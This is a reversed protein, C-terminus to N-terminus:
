REGGTLLLAALETDVATDSVESGYPVLEEADTLFAMVEDTPLHFVSHGDPSTLAIHYRGDEVWCVVDRLGSMGTLGGALLDRGFWWVVPDGDRRYGFDLTVALPDTDTYRFEVDRVETGGISCAVVTYSITRSVTAM